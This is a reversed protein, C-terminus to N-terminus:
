ITIHALILELHVEHVRVMSCCLWSEAEFITVAADHGHILEMSLELIHSCLSNTNCVATQKVM